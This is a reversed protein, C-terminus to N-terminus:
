RVLCQAVSIIGIKKEIDGISFFDLDDGSLTAVNEFLFIKQNMNLFKKITDIEGPVNIFDGLQILGIRIPKTKM